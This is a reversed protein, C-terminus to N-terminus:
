SIEEIREPGFVLPWDYPLCGPIKLNGKAFTLHPKYDPYDWSAGLDKLKRHRLELVPSNFCLVNCSGFKRIKKPMSAIVIDQDKPIKSHDILAKSYAITVHLKELPELNKFGNARAWLSLEQVNVLPRYVYLSKM